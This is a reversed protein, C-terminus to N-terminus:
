VDYHGVDWFAGSALRRGEILHEVLSELSHFNVLEKIEHPTIRCKLTLQLQEDKAREIEKKADMHSPDAATKLKTDYYRQVDEGRISAIMMELDPWPEMAYFQLLEIFNGVALSPNDFLAQRQAQLKATAKDYSDTEDGEKAYTKTEHHIQESLTILSVLFDKIEKRAENDFRSLVEPPIQRVRRKMREKEEASVVKEGEIPVLSLKM